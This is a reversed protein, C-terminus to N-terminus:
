KPGHADMFDFRATEGEATSTVVADSGPLRGPSDSCTTRPWATETVLPDGTPETMLFRRLRMAFFFCRLSRFFVRMWRRRAPLYRWLM